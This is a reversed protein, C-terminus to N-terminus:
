PCLCEDGLELKLIFDPLEQKMRINPCAVCIMKM